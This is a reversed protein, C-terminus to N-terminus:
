GEDIVLRGEGEDEMEADMAIGLSVHSFIQLAFWAGASLADAAGTVVIGSNRFDGAVSGDEAGGEGAVELRLLEGDEAPPDFVDFGYDAFEGDGAPTPEASPRGEAM